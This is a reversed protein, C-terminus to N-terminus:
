AVKPAGFKDIKHIEIFSNLENIENDLLAPTFEVGLRNQM